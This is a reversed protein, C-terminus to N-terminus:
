SKKRTRRKILALIKILEDYNSQIVKAQPHYPGLTGVVIKLAKQLLPKAKRYQGQEQYFNALNNLSTAIDAHGKELTGKRINLCKLYLSKAKNYQKLELYSHALNSMSTLTEPREIGLSKQRIQLSEQFYQNAEKYKEQEHYFRGLFHLTNATSPHNKDLVERRIKLAKHFFEEAKDYQEIGQYNIAINHFGIAINPHNKELLKHNIKLSKKFLPEAEKYQGQEQYILAINSICIATDIHEEGFQSKYIKLAKSCLLLAEDYIGQEQYLLGLNDMITATFSEDRNKLNKYIKLAQKYSTEAEKYLRHRRYIMGLNNLVLAYEESDEKHETIAAEKAQLGLSLASSYDGTNNAFSAATILAEFCPNLQATRLYHKAADTWRIDLEAIYGRAFTISSFQQITLKEDAEMKALLRDAELANGKKLANNVTNLKVVSIGNYKPDLVSELKTFTKYAEQLTKEPHTLNNKLATLEAQIRAANEKEHALKLELEKCKVAKKTNEEYSKILADLQRSSESNKKSDFLHSLSKNTFYGLGADIIVAFISM